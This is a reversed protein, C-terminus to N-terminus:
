GDLRGDLTNILFGQLYQNFGLNQINFQVFFQLKTNVPVQGVIGSSNAAVLGNAVTEISQCHTAGGVKKCIDDAGEPVPKILAVMVANSLTVSTRESPAGDNSTRLLAVAVMVTPVCTGTCDELIEVPLSLTTLLAWYTDVPTVKVTVGLIM